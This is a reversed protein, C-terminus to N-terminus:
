EAEKTMIIRDLPQISSWIPADQEQWARCCSSPQGLLRISCEQFSCPIYWSFFSHVPFFIVRAVWSTCSLPQRYWDSLKVPQHYGGPHCWTANAKWPSGDPSQPPSKGMRPAVPTAPRTKWGYGWAPIASSYKSFSCSYGGAQQLEM